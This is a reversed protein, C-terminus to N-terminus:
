LASHGRAKPLPQRYLRLRTPFEFPTQGRRLLAREVGKESQRRLARVDRGLEAGRERGKEGHGVDHENVRPDKLFCAHFLDGGNFARYFDVIADFASGDERKAEAGTIPAQVIAPM